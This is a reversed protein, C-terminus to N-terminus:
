IPEAIGSGAVKLPMQPNNTTFNLDGVPKGKMKWIVGTVLSVTWIGLEASAALLPLNKTENESSFDCAVNPIDFSPRKRNVQDIMEGAGTIADDDDNARLGGPNITVDENGKVQFRFTGLSHKCVVELVDGGSYVPM